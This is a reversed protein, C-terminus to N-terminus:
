YVMRTAKPPSTTATRKRRAPKASKAPQEAALKDAEEKDSIEKALRLDRLRTMKAATEARENRYIKKSSVDKQEAKKFYRESNKAASSAGTVPNAM